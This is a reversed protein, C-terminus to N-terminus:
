GAAGPQPALTQRARLQAVASYKLLQEAIERDLRGASRLERVRTRLAELAANTAPLDGARSAGRARDVFRHLEAREIPALQPRRDGCGAIAFALVCALAYARRRM